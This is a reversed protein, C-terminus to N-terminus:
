FILHFLFVNERKKDADKLLAEETRSNKLIMQEKVQMLEGLKSNITMKNANHDIVM